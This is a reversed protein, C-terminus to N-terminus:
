TSFEPCDLVHKLNWLQVEEVSDRHFRVVVPQAEDITILDVVNPRRTDVAREGVVLNFGKGCWLPREDEM